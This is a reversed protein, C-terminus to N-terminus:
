LLQFLLAGSSSATVQLAAEYNTQLASLTTFAEATDAETALSLREQLVLEFNEAVTRADELRSLRYGVDSWALSVQSSAEELTDIAAAIAATDNATLADAFDNLAAFVDVGGTFAQSGDITALVDVNAGVQVSSTAGAGVYVGADTFPRADYADGAFLYRGGFDSNALAVLDLGLQSVEPAAAARDDASYTESAYQTALEVARTLLDSVASFTSDATLLLDEVGDVSKKWREQDALSSRMGHILKWKGAADSPRVVSLGSTAIQQARELKATIARFRSITQQSNLVLSNRYIQM